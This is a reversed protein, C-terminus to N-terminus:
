LAIQCTPSRLAERSTVSDWSLQEPKQTHKRLQYGSSTPNPWSTALDPRGLRLQLQLPSCPSLELLGDESVM